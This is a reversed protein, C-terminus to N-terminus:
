GGCAVAEQCHFRLWALWLNPISSGRGSLAPSGLRRICPFRIHPKRPLLQTIRMHHSYIPQHYRGAATHSTKDRLTIRTAAIETM